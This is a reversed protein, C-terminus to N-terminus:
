PTLAPPATSALFKKRRMIRTRRTTLITGRASADRSPPAPYDLWAAANYSTGVSSYQAFPVIGIKVDADEAEFMTEILDTAATKLTGIKGKQNMSGTIDLALVM